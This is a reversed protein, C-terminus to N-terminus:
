RLIFRSVLHCIHLLILISSVFSCHFRISGMMTDDIGELSGLPRGALSGRFTRSPMNHIKRVPAGQFSKGWRYGGYWVHWRRNWCHTLCPTKRRMAWSSTSSRFSRPFISIVSANMSPLKAGAFFPTKSDALCLTAFAGLDHCDCVSSTKRDGSVNFASRGVLYLKDFISYVAAKGLIGRILQNAVLGIIAVFKILLQKIFATNFHNCRVPFSPFFRFGLIAPLQPAIPASPLHLAQKSPELVEPSQNNSVFIMYFIEQGHNM